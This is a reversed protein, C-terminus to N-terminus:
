PNLEIPNLLGRGMRANSAKNETPSPRPGLYVSSRRQMESAFGEAKTVEGDRACPPLAEFFAQCTAITVSCIGIHNKRKAMAAQAAKVFFVVPATQDLFMDFLNSADQGREILRAMGLIEIQRPISQMWQFAIKSSKPADGNPCIPSDNKPKLPLVDRVNIATIIM